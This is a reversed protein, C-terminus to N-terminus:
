LANPFMLVVSKRIYSWLYEDYVVSVKQLTNRILLTHLLLPRMRRIITYSAIIHPELTELDVTSKGMVKNINCLDNGEM